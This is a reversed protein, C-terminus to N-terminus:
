EQGRAAPLAAAAPRSLGIIEDIEGQYAYAEGAIIEELTVPRGMRGSEIPAYALAVDLRAEEGSVEPTAGTRICEALEHYELAVIKADIDNFEFKYTWVREGGFLEAALPDLRYSPAYELIREDEVVTGDDFHLKVPRGNRDGPSQLSGKSGWVHRMSFPMGHGAHDDIWHGVVGSAFSIQAYMADDGSAEVTDPHNGIWRAYYGGPGAGRTNRRTKEHLRSEGYVSRVEGMYFRLIDAYHVGADIPMSATHKMYRWPTMSMVDRGGVSNLLILRPTGIAGDQLLARVLRNIPDRRYNEAVSLVREKRRATEIIQTCGAVTVALPKECLVHLGAELCQTAVTHHSGTDTTVDAAQLDPMERVMQEVSSFVRPRTGLLQEAEDALWNANDQNLDCTAVLDVNHQSSKYLAAMGNLHRRGMGGCGVAAMTIREMQKAEEILVNTDHARNGQAHAQV